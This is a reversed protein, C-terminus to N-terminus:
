CLIHVKPYSKVPLKIRLESRTSINMIGSYSIFFLTKM